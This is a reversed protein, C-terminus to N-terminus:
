TFLDQVKDNSAFTDPSIDEMQVGGDEIQKTGVSNEPLTDITIGDVPVDLTRQNVRIHRLINAGDVREYYLHMTSSVLLHKLKSLDNQKAM